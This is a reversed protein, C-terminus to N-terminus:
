SKSGRNIYKKNLYEVVIPFCPIVLLLAVMIGFKFVLNISGIVVFLVYSVLIPSQYKTSRFKKLVELLHLSMFLIVPISGFLGFVGLFDLWESHGGVFLLGNYYDYQTLHGVGIFLNAMFTHLSKEYLQFRYETSDGFGNGRLGYALEQLRQGIFTNDFLTSIDILLDTITQLFFTSILYFFLLSCFLFLLDRKLKGNLIFLAYIISIITLLFGMGYDSKIITYVGILIFLFIFTKFFVNKIIRNKIFIVLFPVLMCLAYTLDYGGGIGLDNLAGLQKNHISGSALARAANPVSHLIIITKVSVFVYITLISICLIVISKEKNNKSYFDYILMPSLIVLFGLILKISEIFSLGSIIGGIFYYGFFILVLIYKKNM